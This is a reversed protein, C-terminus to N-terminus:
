TTDRSTEKQVQVLYPEWKQSVLGYSSMSTDSYYPHLTEQPTACIYEGIIAAVDWRDGNIDILAGLHYVPRDVQIIGKISSKQM